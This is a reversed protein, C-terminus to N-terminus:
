RKRREKCLASYYRLAVRIWQNLSRSDLRAENEWDAWDEASSRVTKPIGLPGRANSDGPRIKNKKPM